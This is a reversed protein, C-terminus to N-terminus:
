HPTRVTLRHKSLVTARIKLSIKTNGLDRGQIDRLSKISTATEQRALDKETKDADNKILKVMSPVYLSSSSESYVSKKPYNIKAITKTPKTATQHFQTSDSNRKIFPSQFTTKKAISQFPKPKNLSTNFFAGVPKYTSVPSKIPDSTRSTEASQQNEENECIVLSKIEFCKM